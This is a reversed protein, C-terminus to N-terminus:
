HKMQDRRALTPFMMWWLAAILVTGLGGSVVSAEPGWFAAVTGSEFEGLQNSAGIFLSNVAAVRGRMEDPTELQM